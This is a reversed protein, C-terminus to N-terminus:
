STEIHCSSCYSERKAKCRTRHYEFVQLLAMRPHLGEICSVTSLPFKRPPVKSWETQISKRHIDGQNCVEFFTSDRWKLSIPGITSFVFSFSMWWLNQSICPEGSIIKNSDKGNWSSLWTIDREATDYSMSSYGWYYIEIRIKCYFNNMKMLFM